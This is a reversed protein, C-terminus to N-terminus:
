EIRELQQGLSTFLCIVVGTMILWIGWTSFFMGGICALAAATFVLWNGTFYLIVILILAIISFAFWFLPSSMEPVISTVPSLLHNSAGTGAHIWLGAIFGLGVIVERFFVYSLRAVAIKM